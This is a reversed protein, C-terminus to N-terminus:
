IGKQPGAANSDAVLSKSFISERALAGSIKMWYIQNEKGPYTGENHKSLIGKINKFIRFDTAEM